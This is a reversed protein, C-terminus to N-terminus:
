SHISQCELIQFIGVNRLAIVEEATYLKLNSAAGHFLTDTSTFPGITVLPADEGTKPDRYPTVHNHTVIIQPFLEPLFHM